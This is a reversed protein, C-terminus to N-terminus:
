YGADILSKGDYINELEKMYQIIELYGVISIMRMHESKYKDTTNYIKEKLDNWMQYYNM